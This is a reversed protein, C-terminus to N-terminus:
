VPSTEKPQRRSTEVKGWIMMWEVAMVRDYHMKKM